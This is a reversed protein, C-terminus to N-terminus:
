YKKHLLNRAIYMDYMSSLLSILDFGGVPDFDVKVGAMSM